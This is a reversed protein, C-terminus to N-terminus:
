PVLRADLLNAHDQQDGRDAVDVILSLRKAGRIDVSIPTPAQGGRVVDSTFKPQWKRSGDDTYIRLVISGAGETTDDIGLEAEFRRYPQDLRYTLGAISHVGIGKESRRGGCRLRGGLVNRDRQYPWSLSLYPQHQYKAIPIDSLYTATRGLPQVYCINALSTNVVLGGVTKMVVGRGGPKLSELVLRSGDRTGVLLFQDPRPPRRTLAPNLVLAVVQDMDITTNSDATRFTLQDDKLALTLGTLLDGNEL